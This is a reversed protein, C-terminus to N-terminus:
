VLEQLLYKLQQPEIELLHLGVFSKGVLRWPVGFIASTGPMHTLVENIKHGLEVYKIVDQAFQKQNENDAYVNQCYVLADAEEQNVKVTKGDEIIWLERMATLPSNRATRAARYLPDPVPVDLIKLFADKSIQFKGGAIPVEAVQVVAAEHVKQPAHMLQFWDTLPVLDLANWTDVLAQLNNRSLEIDRRTDAEYKENRYILFKEM